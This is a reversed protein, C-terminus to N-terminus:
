KNITLNSITNNGISESKKKEDALRKFEKEVSGTGYAEDIEADTTPEDSKAKDIVSGAMVSSAAALVATDSVVDKSVYRSVKPINRKAFKFGKWLEPLMWAFTTGEFTQWMNDFLKSEPTDPLIKIFHKIAQMDKSNIFMSVHKEDFGLAYGMGYALPM